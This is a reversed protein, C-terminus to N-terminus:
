IIIAILGDPIELHTGEGVPAGGCDITIKAAKYDLTAIYDDPESFYEEFAIEAARSSNFVLTIMPTEEVFRAFNEVTKRFNLIANESGIAKGPGPWDSTSEGSKPLRV